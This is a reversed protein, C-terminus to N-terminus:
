ALQVADRPLIAKLTGPGIVGFNPEYTKGHLDSLDLLSAAAGRHSASASELHTSMEAAPVGAPPSHKDGLSRVQGSQAPQKGKHRFSGFLKSLDLLSAAAGRHEASALELHTSTGAM